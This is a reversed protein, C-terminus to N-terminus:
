YIRTLFLNIELSEVGKKRRKDSVAAFSHDFFTNGCFPEAGKKEISFFKRICTHEVGRVIRM